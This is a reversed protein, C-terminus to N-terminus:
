SYKNKMKKFWESQTRASYKRRFRVGKFGKGIVRSQWSKKKNKKKKM